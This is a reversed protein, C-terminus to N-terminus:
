PGPPVAVAESLVIPGPRRGFGPVLALMSAVLVTWTNVYGVNFSVNALMGYLFFTAPGIILAFRISNTGGDRGVVLAKLLIGFVGCALAMSGILGVVGTEMLQQVLFQHASTQSHVTLGGGTGIGALWNQEGIRLGERIAETREFASSDQVTDLTVVPQLRESMTSSFDSAYHVLLGISIACGIGFLLYSRMGFKFGWILATAAILVIFAARVELILLTMVVPALAVACAVRVLLSSRRDLSIWIFLPAVIVLFAATNGRNGYTAEEFSLMRLNDLYANLVVQLDTTGWEERFAWLGNMIPFLSGVVLGAAGIELEKRTIGIGNLAIYVAAGGLFVACYTAVVLERGSNAAVSLTAAAMWVAMAPGIWLKSGNLRLGARGLLLRALALGLALGLFGVFFVKRGPLYFAATHGGWIFALLLGFALSGRRLGAMGRKVTTGMSGGENIVYANL